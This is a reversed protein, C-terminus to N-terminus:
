SVARNTCCRMKLLRPKTQKTIRGIKQDANSDITPLIPFNKDIPLPLHTNPPQTHHDSDFGDVRLDARLLTNNPWFLKNRLGVHHSLVITGPIGGICVLGVTRGTAEKRCSTSVSLPSILCFPNFSSFVLRCAFNNISGVVSWESKSFLGIVATHGIPYGISYILFIATCFKWSPNEADADLFALSLVGLSMILMGGCIMQIDSLFRALHGMSLLSIVGISGCTAVIMGATDNTLGFHSQAISVGLTEFSGISGKTSVNLLMCGLICCDYVTLGLFTMNNAFDEIAARKASKKKTNKAPQMRVRDRFFLLMTIITGTVIFNMFYAPATYM